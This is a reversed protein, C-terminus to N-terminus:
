KYGLVFVACGLDEGVTGAPIVYDIYINRYKAIDFVFEKEFKDKNTFLLKRKSNDKDRNYINIEVNKKLASLNFSVRYKEGIFMPIEIEKVQDKATTKLRTVKGSDYSYPDLV